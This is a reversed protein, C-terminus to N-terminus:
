IKLGLDHIQLLNINFKQINSELFFSNFFTINQGDIISINKHILNNRYDLFSNM